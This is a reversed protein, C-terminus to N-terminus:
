RSAVLNGTPANTRNFSVHIHGSHDHSGKYPQWGTDPRWIRKNHILYKINEADAVAVLEDAIQGGTKTDPIGIDIADGTNHDSKRKKHAEDGWIGWNAVSPYKATVRDWLTYVNPNVNPDRKLTKASGQPNPAPPEDVPSGQPTPDPTKAPKPTAPANPDPKGFLFQKLRTGFDPDNKFANKAQSTLIQQGVFQDADAQTTIGAARFKQLINMKATEIENIRQAYEMSQANGSQKNPMEGFTGASALVDLKNAIYSELKSNPSLVGGNASMEAVKENLRKTFPELFPDPINETAWTVLEMMEKSPADTSPFAALKNFGQKILAESEPTGVSANTVRRELALQMKGDLQSFLPHTRLADLGILKKSDLLQSLTGIKQTEQLSQVVEATKIYRPYSDVSINPLNAIPKGETFAKTLNAIMAAPNDTISSLLLANDKAGNIQAQNNAFQAPTLQRAKFMTDNLTAADDFSGSTIFTQLAALKRGEDQELSAIHATLSYEAMDKAESRLADAEVYKRSWNSIGKFLAPNLNGNKDRYTNKVVVPFQSPDTASMQQKMSGQVETLNTLFTSTAQADAMKSYAVMADMGEMGIQTVNTGISVGARDMATAADVNVLNSRYGERIQSVAQNGVEDQPFRPNALSYASGGTPANPIEALPIRAM